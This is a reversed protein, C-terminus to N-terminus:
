NKQGFKKKKLKGIVELEDATKGDLDKIDTRAGHKTLFDIIKKDGIVVAAHLATRGDLPTQHHPINDDILRRSYVQFSIKCVALDSTLDNLDKVNKVFNLLNINQHNIDAKAEVLVKVVEFLGKEAAMYLPTHHEYGSLINVDARARCLSKICEAKQKSSNKSSRIINHICAYGYEDIDNVIFSCQSQEIDVKLAPKKCEDMGALPFIALALVIFLKNKM